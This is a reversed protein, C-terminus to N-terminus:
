CCINVNIYNIHLEVLSGVGDRNSKYWILELYIM